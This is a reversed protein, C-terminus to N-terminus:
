YTDRDRREHPEPPDPPLSFGTLEKNEVALLPEFGVREAM